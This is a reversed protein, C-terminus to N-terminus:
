GLQFRRRLALAFLFLLPIACIRHILRALSFAASWGDGADELRQAWDHRRVPDAVPAVSIEAAFVLPGALDIVTWSAPPEGEPVLTGSKLGLGGYAVFAILWVAALVRLPQLISAGYDAFAGYAWAAWIEWRKVDKDSAPDRAQRARLELAFFRQEDLHSGQQRMLLKLRRYAQEFDPAADAARTKVTKLDRLASPARKGQYAWRPGTEVGAAKFASPAAALYDSHAKAAAVWLVQCIRAEVSLDADPPTEDDAAAKRWTALTQANPPSGFGTRGSLRAALADWGMAAQQPEYRFKAGRWLVGDHLEAQFMQVPGHFAADRFDPQQGFVRDHFAMPGLGLGGKFSFRSFAGTERRSSGTNLVLAFDAASLDTKPNHLDALGTKEGARLVRGARQAPPSGRHFFAARLFSASDFDAVSAFSASYFRAVGAFSASQFWADSAFRASDFWANGAFSASQFSADGAFSARTFDAGPGFHAHSFDAGGLHASRRLSLHLPSAEDDNLTPLARVVAGDLQARRDAREPVGFFEVRTEGAASLRQALCADLQTWRRCAASGTKGRALSAKFWGRQADADVPEGPPPGPPMHVIHWTRGDPTDAGTLLLGAKKLADESRLRWEDDPDSRWYDQLAAPRTKPGKPADDKRVCQAEDVVVWGRWPHVPDGFGDLRALGDWSYDAEFWGQWWAPDRDIDTLIPGAM